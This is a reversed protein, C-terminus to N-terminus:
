LIYFVYRGMKTLFLNKARGRSWEPYHVPIPESREAWRGRPKGLRWRRHYASDVKPRDSFRASAIMFQSSEANLPNRMACRRKIAM